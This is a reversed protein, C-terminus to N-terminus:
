KRDLWEQSPEKGFTAIYSKIENELFQKRVHEYKRTLENWANKNKYFYIGYSPAYGFCLIQATIHEEETLIETAEFTGIFRHDEAYTNTIFTHPSVEYKGNEYIVNTKNFCGLDSIIKEQVEKPLTNFLEKM